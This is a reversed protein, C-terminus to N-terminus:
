PYHPIGKMERIEREKKKMEERYKIREEMEIKDSMAKARVTADYAVMEKLKAYGRDKAEGKAAIDELQESLAGGYTQSPMWCEKFVLAGDEDRITPEHWGKNPFIVKIHDWFRPLAPDQFLDPVAHVHNTTHLAGITLRKFGTQKHDPFLGNDKFVLHIGNENPYEAYKWEGSYRLQRKNKLDEGRVGERMYAADSAIRDLVSRMWNDMNILLHVTKQLNKCKIGLARVVSKDYKAWESRLQLNETILGIRDNITMRKAKAVINKDQIGYKAVFALRQREAHSIHSDKWRVQMHIIFDRDLIWNWIWKLVYCVM